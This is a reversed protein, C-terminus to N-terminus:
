EGRVAALLDGYRSNFIDTLVQVARVQRAADRQEIADDIMQICVDIDGMAIAASEIDMRNMEKMDNGGFIIKVM